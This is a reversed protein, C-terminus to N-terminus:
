SDSCFPGTNNSSYLVLYFPKLIFFFEDRVGGPWEERRLRNERRRQPAVEGSRGLVGIRGSCGELGRSSGRLPASSASASIASRRASRRDASIEGSRLTRGGGGKGIQPEIEIPDEPSLTHLRTPFTSNFGPSHRPNSAKLQAPHPLTAWTSM